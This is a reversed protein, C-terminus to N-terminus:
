GKEILLYFIIQIKFRPNQYVVKFTEEFTINTNKKYRYQWPVPLMGTNDWEWYFRDAQAEAYTDPALHWKQWL